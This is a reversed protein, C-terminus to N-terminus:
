IDDEDVPLVPYVFPIITNAVDNLIADIFADGEINSQHFCVNECQLFRIGEITGYIYIM